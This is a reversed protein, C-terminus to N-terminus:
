LLGMISPTPLPVLNFISVVESLELPQPFHLCLGFDFKFSLIAM